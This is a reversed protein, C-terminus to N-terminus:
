ILRLKSNNYDLVIEIDDPCHNNYLEEFFSQFPM